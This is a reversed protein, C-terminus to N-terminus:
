TGGVSGASGPTGPSGPSGPSGASGPADVNVGADRLQSEVETLREDIERFRDALTRV